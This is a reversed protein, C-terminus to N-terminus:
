LSIVYEFENRESAKRLLPERTEYLLLIGPEEVEGPVYYTQGPPLGEEIKGGAFIGLERISSGVGDEYDFLFKLYLHPTPTESVRYRGTSLVIGGEEDPMVYLSTFLAKRGLENILATKEPDPPPPENGWSENGGGWALYLTQEKLARALAARGSDTLVSM